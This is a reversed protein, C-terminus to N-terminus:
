SDTVLIAVGVDRPKTLATDVGLEERGVHRRVALPGARGADRELLDSARLEQSGRRLEEATEEPFVQGPGPKEPDFGKSVYVGRIPEAPFSWFWSVVISRGGSAGVMEWLAPAHRNGPGTEATEYGGRVREVFNVVGHVHRPVGTAVTAWLAPSIMPEESLLTAHAGEQILAAFVPLEGRVVRPRILEWTAGDIGILWVPGGASGPRPLTGEWRPYDIGPYSADSTSDVGDRNTSCAVLLALFVLVPLFSRKPPLRFTIARRMAALM